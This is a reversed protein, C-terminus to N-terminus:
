PMAASGASERVAFIDTAIFFDASAENRSLWRRMSKHISCAIRAARQELTTPWIDIAHKMNGNDHRRLITQM